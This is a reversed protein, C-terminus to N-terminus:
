LKGGPTYTLEMGLVNGVYHTGQRVLTVRQQALWVTVRSETIQDVDAQVQKGTRTNTLLISSPTNSGTNTNPRRM